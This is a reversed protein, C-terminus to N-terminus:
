REDCITLWANNIQSLRSRRIRTHFIKNWDIIMNIIAIRASYLIVIIVTLMVFYKRIYYINTTAAVTQRSEGEM